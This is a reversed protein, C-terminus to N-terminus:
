RWAAFTVRGRRRESRRSGQSYSGCERAAVRDRHTPPSLFPPSPLYRRLPLESAPDPAVAHRIARAKTLLVKCRMCGLRSWRTLHHERRASRAAARGRAHRLLLGVIVAHRVQAQPLVLTSKGILRGDGASARGEHRVAPRGGPREDDTLGAVDLLRNWNNRLDELSQLGDFGVAGAKRVYVLNEGESVMLEAIEPDTFSEGLVFGVIAAMFPSMGSFRAPNLKRSLSEM